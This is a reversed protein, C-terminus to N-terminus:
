RSSMGHYVGNSETVFHANICAIISSHNNFRIFIYLSHM